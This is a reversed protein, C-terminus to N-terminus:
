LPLILSASFFIDLSGLTTETVECVLQGLLQKEKGHVYVSVLVSVCVTFGGM